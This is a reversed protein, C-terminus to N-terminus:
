LGVKVTVTNSSPEYLASGSYDATITYTGSQSPAFTCAAVGAELPAASCSSPLSVKGSPGQVLFVVTGANPAPNVTASVTMASGKRPSAPLRLSLTTPELANVSASGSASVYNADGSYSASFTYTGPGSAGPPTFVCPAIDAHLSLNQCSSIPVATGGAFSASFSVSGGSDGAGLVASALLPRGVTATSPLILVNLNTGYKV